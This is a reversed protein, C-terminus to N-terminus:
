RAGRARRAGRPNADPASEEDREAHDAEDHTTALSCAPLNALRRERTERRVTNRCGMALSLDGLGFRLTSEPETMPRDALQSQLATAASRLTNAMTETTALAASAGSTAHPGGLTELIQALNGPERRERPTPESRYCRDPHDPLDLGITCGNLLLNVQQRFAAIRERSLRPSTRSLASLQREFRRIRAHARDVHARAARLWDPWGSRPGMETFRTELAYIARKFATFDSTFSPTGESLSQVYNQRLEELGADSQAGRYFIERAPRYCPANPPPDGAECFRSCFVHDSVRSPIEDCSMTANDGTAVVDAPTHTQCAYEYFSRERAARTAHATPNRSCPPPPPAEPAPDGNGEPVPPHEGTESVCIFHHPTSSVSPPPAGDEAADEPDSCVSNALDVRPLTGSPCRGAPANYWCGLEVHAEAPSGYGLLLVWAVAGLSKRLSYALTRSLM